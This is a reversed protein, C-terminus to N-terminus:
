YGHLPRCTCSVGPLPGIKLRLFYRYDITSAIPFTWQRPGVHILTVPEGVLSINGHIIKPMQEIMAKTSVSNSVDVYEWSSNVTFIVKRDLNISLAEAWM